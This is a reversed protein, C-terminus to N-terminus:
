RRARKRGKLQRFEEREEESAHERVYVQAAFRLDPLTRYVEDLARLLKRRLRAVSACLLALVAILFSVIAMAISFAKKATSLQSFAEPIMM